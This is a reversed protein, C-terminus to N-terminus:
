VRFMDLLKLSKTVNGEKGELMIALKNDPRIKSIRPYKAIFRMIKDHLEPSERFKILCGKEGLDFKEINLSRCINKIKIIQLLNNMEEPIKGFRDEMEYIFNEYDEETKIDGIRRYISMRLISDAIYNDPIYVSVGINIIPSLENPESVKSDRLDDIAKQLMENYLEVGVEKVNGSQEEGVLNGFGRQDMDHSAVSFSGGLSEISSILELRKMAEKTATKETLTLYVYGRLKSRGVRGRLQYLQSLGLMEAKHIVMTNATKVDIGSEIITTSILVDFQGDYFDNMIQDIETPAMRGHAIAFKLEPLFGKLKPIIEELDAIRPVVYFSQGGRFHERMLADRIIIEDYPIVSTKTVLRDIPPTAILSLQKIGILSMQLTRPIPTASMSLVHVGSGETMTLSHSAIESSIQHRGGKLNKLKEKQKVGFHQEEDIILLKLNLFVVNDSLLAHTGIIIDIGGKKLLEKNESAEKKTVLGSIMKIKIDFGRFREKFNIYHQRALITTPAIVAVQMGRGSGAVMFAARMAVETKGFGVDGCILRDMPKGSDLDKMIDDIANQQDNTEIYPFKKCFSDYYDQSLELPEMEILERAAAIKMLNTAIEGIRDKIKSKRKQWGLSGLRDLDSSYESGYKKILDVNEVPVFLKDDGSYLIKICDHSKGSIQLTEIGLFQGIGHDKHTILEGPILHDLETLINKLKKRSDTKHYIKEGFIDQESIIMFNKHEFGHALPFIKIKNHLCEDRGEKTMALSHTAIEPFKDHFGQEDQNEPIAVDIKLDGRLSLSISVDDMGYSSFVRLIRESAHESHAAIIVQKKASKIYEYALQPPTKKQEASLTQFNPLPTFNEDNPLSKNQKVANEWMEEPKVAFYKAGINFSRDSRSEFFDYVMEMRDNCAQEFSHDSFIIPDNLIDPLLVLKDYFLPLLNEIGQSKAFSEDSPWEFNHNVGFNKLFNAKFRAINKANLHLESPPYLLIVDTKDNTIQTETSFLKISEIKDWCFNVRYAKDSTVIDVLDGRVAFEGPQDATGSRYYGSKHLFEALKIPTYADGIKIELFYESIESPLPIKQLLAAASAIILNGRRHSIDILVKARASMIDSSPSIRDYPLIDWAPFFQIKSTILADNGSISSSSAIESNKSSHLFGDRALFRSYFQVELFVNKADQESSCAIIFDREQSKLFQQFIVFNSWARTVQM